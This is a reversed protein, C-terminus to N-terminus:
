PFVESLRAALELAGGNNDIEGACYGLMEARTPESAHKDTSPGIRAAAEVWYVSGGLRGKLYRAENPFRCDPVVFAADRNEEVTRRVANLWVEDWLSRGWETGLYQLIARPSALRVQYPDFALSLADAAARSSVPKPADGFLRTIWEKGDPDHRLFTGAAQIEQAATRIQDHTFARDRLESHGDVVETSLTRPLLALALDKLERALSLERYGHKQALWLAITSKGSSKRGALAVLTM